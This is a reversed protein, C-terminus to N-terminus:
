WCTTSVKHALQHPAPMIDMSASPPHAAHHPPTTAFRRVLTHAPTPQHTPQRRVVIPTPNQTAVAKKEVAASKHVYKRHLTRSKQLPTHVVQAAHARTTENGREVRLLKGTRQDYVVGKVTVTKQSM